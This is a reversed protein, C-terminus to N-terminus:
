DNCQSQVTCIGGGNDGSTNEPPPLPPMGNNKGRSDWDRIEKADFNDKGDDEQGIIKVREGIRIKDGQNKLDHDNIEWINGSLDKIVFEDSSLVQIIDGGLLGDEPHSWVDNKGFKLKNYYPVNSSFIQDVSDGIGFHYMIAGLCVSSAVSLIVIGYVHHHYWGKTHVFNYYALWSFLMLCIIWLYPLSLVLYQLFSKHLYFYVDWDHNFLIELVVSFSLAGVVLAAIFALWLVWNKALFKWRPDPEIHKEKITQLIKESTTTMPENVKTAIKKTKLMLHM